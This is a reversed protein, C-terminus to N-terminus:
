ELDAIICGVPQTIRPTTTASGSLASDIANQLDHSTAKPRARGVDAYRNDIRGRYILRSRPGEHVFVAAEPTRTAGTMRVLEHRPDRIASAHQDHTNLHTRISAVSESPDVFVLWFRVGRPEYEARLREIAPMLRNAIPCDTRTFLLVTARMGASDLPDTARGNLDVGAPGQASIVAGVLFSLALAGIVQRLAM